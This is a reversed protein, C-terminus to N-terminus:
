YYEREDSNQKKRMIAGWSISVPINCMFPTFTTLFFVLEWVRLDLDGIEVTQIEM